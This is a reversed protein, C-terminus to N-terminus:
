RVRHQLSESKPYIQPCIPRLRTGKGRNIQYHVHRGQYRRLQDGNPVKQKGASIGRESERIRVIVITNM